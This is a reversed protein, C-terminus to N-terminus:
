DIHIQSVPVTLTNSRISSMIELTLVVLQCSISISLIYMPFPPARFLSKPNFLCNYPHKHAYQISMDPLTNHNVLHLASKHWAMTASCSYPVAQRSHYTPSFIRHRERATVHTPRHETIIANGPSVRLKQRSIFTYCVNYIPRSAVFGTNPTESM